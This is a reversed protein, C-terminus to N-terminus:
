MNRGLKKMFENDEDFELEESLELSIFFINLPICFPYSRILFFHTLRLLLILGGLRLVATSNWWLLVYFSISFATCYTQEFIIEHLVRSLAICCKATTKANKCMPCCSTDRVNNGVVDLHGQFSQNWLWEFTCLLKAVVWFCRSPPGIHHTSACPLTSQCLFM